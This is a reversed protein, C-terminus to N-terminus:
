NTTRLKNFFFLFNILNFCKSFHTHVKTENSTRQQKVESDSVNGNDLADKWKRAKEM